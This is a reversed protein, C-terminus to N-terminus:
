HHSITAMCSKLRPVIEGELKWNDHDSYNIIVIHEKDQLKEELEKVESNMREQILDEIEGSSDEMLTNIENWSAKPNCERLTGEFEDEVEWKVPYYLDEQYYEIADEKSTGKTKQVDNFLQEFYGGTNDKLLEEKITDKSKFGLIFSSSSSNTVFDTRIKM